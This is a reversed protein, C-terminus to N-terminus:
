VVGGDSPNSNLREIAGDVQQRQEKTGLRITKVINEWDEVLISFEDEIVIESIAGRHILHLHGEDCRIGLFHQFDNM